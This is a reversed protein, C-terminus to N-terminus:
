FDSTLFKVSNTGDSLGLPSETRRKIRVEQPQSDIKPMEQSASAVGWIQKMNTCLEGHTDTYM